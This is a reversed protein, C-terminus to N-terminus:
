WTTGGKAHTDDTVKGVISLAQWAPVPRNYAADYVLHLRAVPGAGEPCARDLLRTKHAHVITPPASRGARITIGDSLDEVAHAYESILFPTLVHDVPGLVDGVQLDSVLHGLVRAAEEVGDGAIVPARWGIGAM